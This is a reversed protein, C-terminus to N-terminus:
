ERGTVCAGAASVIAIYHNGDMSAFTDASILADVRSTYLYNTYTDAGKGVCGSPPAKGAPMRFDFCKKEDAHWSTACFEQADGGGSDGDSCPYFAIGIDSSAPCTCGWAIVSCGAAVDFGVVGPIPAPKSSEDLAAITTINSWYSGSHHM